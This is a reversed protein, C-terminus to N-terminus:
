AFHKYLMKAILRSIFIPMRSFVVNMVVYKNMPKATLFANNILDYRFYKIIYETAGWGNKFRRLGEHEIETRGFSMTKYGNEYYWKIAEWMILNNMRLNQHAMDSAGFKFIVKNGFHFFIAAGIPKGKYSACFICGLNNSLIFDYINKFFIFPQAPLKHRKRTLCHLFYYQRLSEMSSSKQVKVGLNEAKKVNRRTSGSFRLFIQDTNESLSLRHGYYLRYAKSPFLNEGGHFDLYEWELKKGLLTIKQFLENAERNEHIIPNCHDSFPLSIGRRGTIISKVDMFPIMSFLRGNNMTVFYQPLYKYTKILVKAWESSHFISYSDTSVVFENWFKIHLPNTINLNSAM